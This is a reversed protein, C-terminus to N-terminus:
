FGGLFLEGTHEGKDPRIGTGNMGPGKIEFVRVLSDVDITQYIPISIEETHGDIIVNVSDLGSSIGMISLDEDPFSVLVDQTCSAITVMCALFFLNKM